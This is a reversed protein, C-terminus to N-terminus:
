KRKKKGKIKFVPGKRKEIPVEINVIGGPSEDGNEIKIPSNVPKVMNNLDILMDSIGEIQHKLNTVQRNSSQQPEQCLDKDGIM